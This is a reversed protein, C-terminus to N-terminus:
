KGKGLYSIVMITIDDSQTANGVFSEVDKFVKKTIKEPSDWSSKLINSLKENSYEEDNANCAENVGDTFLFLSSNPYMTLTNDAYQYNKMVGLAIGGSELERTSYNKTDYMFPPNHGGNVYRMEGTKFNLIGFFITVFMGADNQDYLDNNVQKLLASPSITASTRTKVLTKTVAMFFAAPIGKGSVDGIVFALHCDDVLYFDYFDGCVGKAPETLAYIDLEEREPFAPFTKPLLGMQIDHALKISEEIRKKELSEEILTARELAVEIQSVLAELLRVDDPLFHDSTKKNLIEIVGLLTADKTIIPMCLISRTHFGTDRDVQPNFREDKYADKINIVKRTQVVNGAIGKDAPFRIEKIEIGEAVRSWLENKKHDYIFLSSREGDMVVTAHAVITQLLSDLEVERGMAKAVELLANLNRIQITSPQKM